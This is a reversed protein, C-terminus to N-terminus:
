RFRHRLTVGAQARRFDNPELTSRNRTFTLAPAVSWGAQLPREAGVRLETQRDSRAEGFFPEIGDFDRREFSLAAFARWADGVGMSLAARAGRLDHSLNDFGRRSSETGAHLGALLIPRRAGDLVRAFTLGLVTRRADRAREDPFDLGFGQAFVGLQTRADLDCQWQVLAGLANRFAAGDLQLHQFQALMNLQHCGTRFAFGSSLDIQDQDLTHASPHRRLSARGGATWQWGGGMPAAWNLALAGAFVSSNRPLSIGLPTVATGDALVWQDYASGFNPNSDHGIELELAATLKGRGADDIRRIADLYRGIVRRAEDPIRQAAVTEFERRANEREHIAFYARALEARAQLLDPRNILVRELAMVAQGPRGSDLAAVGLLYDFAPEGGYDAVSADLLRFAGDPQGGDILGRAQELLRALPSAPASAPASEAARGTGPPAGDSPTQVQAVATAAAGGLLLSLLLARVPLTFPLAAAEPAPTRRSM